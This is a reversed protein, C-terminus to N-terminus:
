RVILTRLYEVLDRRDKESIMLYSQHQQDTELFKRLVGFETRVRILGVERKDRKQRLIHAALHCDTCDHSAYVEEGRVSAAPDAVGLGSRSLLWVAAAAALTLGGFIQLLLRTRPQM